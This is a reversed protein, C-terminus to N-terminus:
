RSPHMELYHRRYAPLRAFVILLMLAAAIAITLSLSAGVMKPNKFVYDTFVGPLLPGLSLGGRDAVTGFHVVVV